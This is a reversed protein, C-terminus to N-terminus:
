DINAVLDKLEAKAQYLQNVLDEVKETAEIVQSWISPEPDPDLEVFVVPLVEPKNVGKHMRAVHVTMGHESISVKDCYPCKIGENSMVAGQLQRTAALKDRRSHRAYCSTCGETKEDFACGCGMCRDWGVQSATVPVSERERALNSEVRRNKAAQVKRAESVEHKLRQREGSSLRITTM